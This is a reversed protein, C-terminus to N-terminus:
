APKPRTLVVMAVLGVLLLIRGAVAVMLPAPPPSYDMRVTHQGPPVMVAQFLYNARHLPAPQNDIIVRWLPDYKISHVLLCAQDLNVEVEISAPARSVVRLDSTKGSFVGDPIDGAVLATTAPDFDNGKLTALVAADGEPTEPFARWARVFRVFPLAGTFEVVRIVKQRAPVSTNPVWGGEFGAPGAALREIFQGQPSNLKQLESVAPPVCIFTRVSGLQWLRIPNDALADFLAQYDTPMRSVSVADFLDYDHSTLHTMRLNNFLPYRPPLLKIRGDHQHARLYESLPNPYLVYRYAQHEIFPIGARLLEFTMILGLMGLLLAQSLKSRRSRRLLLWIVVIVLCSALLALASASLAHSWIRAVAEGYGERQLRLTFATRAALLYLVSALAIAPIICMGWLGSLFLRRNRTQAIQEADGAAARVVDVAFGFALGVFLTFPGLWKDPNRITGMYPLAYFIRYLPFHKGWSLMLSALAIALFLWSLRREDRSLLDRGGPKFLYGLLLAILLFPVVGFAYGALRFNRFGQKTDEWGETRGMGGWYVSNTSRSSAGHYDCAILSWTEATPLSWQTAWAYRQKPDEDVGQGVGKIQTAFMATVVQYGLLLSIAVYITFRGGTKFVVRTGWQRETLVHSLAFHAACCLAFFVGVDPAESIGLGLLGGGIAYPLWRDRRRGREIMGVSLLVFALTFSRIILGNMPFTLNWGCLMLMVAGLFSAWHSRNFQRLTWYGSLGTFLIALFVGIRRLHVAGLSFGMLSHMALPLSRGGMGFFFQNDWSRLLGEPNIAPSLAYFIPGDNFAFVEGPHFLIVRAPLIFALVALTGAVALGILLSRRISKSSM